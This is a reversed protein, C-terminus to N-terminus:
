RQGERGQSFFSAKVKPGCHTPSSIHEVINLSVLFCAVLLNENAYVSVLYSCVILDACALTAILINCRKHLSPSFVSAAIILANGIVGVLSLSMTSYIMGLPVLRLNDNNTPSTAEGLPQEAKPM